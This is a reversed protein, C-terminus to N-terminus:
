SPRRKKILKEVAVKILQKGEDVDDVVHVPYNLARLTLITDSQLATLTGGDKKFEILLPSGGPLFIIFDPFSSKQYRSGTSLKHCVLGYTKRAWGIVAGQVSSESRKINIIAM